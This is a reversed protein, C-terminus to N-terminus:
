TSKGSKLKKFKDLAHNWQVTENNKVTRLLEHFVPQLGYFKKVLQWISEKDASGNYHELVMQTFTPGYDWYIGAFDFAPDGIQADAFDIVGNIRKNEADFLLNSATLDGHIVTRTNAESSAAFFDAFTSQIDLREETSFHPFILQDIDRYLKEWFLQTHRMPLYDPVPMGHLQTLFEGLLRANDESLVERSGIAADGEILDYCSCILQQKGDNLLTPQPVKLNLATQKRLDHLLRTEIEVREAVKEIKPFRFVLQNNVVIVDNDWGTKKEDLQQINLHPMATQIFHLMEKMEM